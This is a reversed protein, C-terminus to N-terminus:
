DVEAQRADPISKRIESLVDKNTLAFDSRTRRLIELKVAPGSVVPATPDAIGARLIKEAEAFDGRKILEDIRAPQNASQKAGSLSLFVCVFFLRWTMSHIRGHM